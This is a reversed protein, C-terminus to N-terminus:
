VDYYLSFVKLFSIDNKENPYVYNSFPNEINLLTFSITFKNFDVTIEVSRNAIILRKEQQRTIFADGTFDHSFYPEAMLVIQNKKNSKPNHMYNFFALLSSRYSIILFFNKNLFYRACISNYNLDDFDKNTIYKYFELNLLNKHKSIFSNLYIIRHDNEKMLQNSIPYCVINDIKGIYIEYEKIETTISEQSNEPIYRFVSKENFDEFFGTYNIQQNNSSDFYFNNCNFKKLKVLGKEKESNLSFIAINQKGFIFFLTENKINDIGVVLFMDIYEFYNLKNDLCNCIFILNQTFKYLFEISRRNKEFYTLFEVVEDLSLILSYKFIEYDFMRFFSSDTLESINIYKVPDKMIKVLEQSTEKDIRKELGQVKKSVKELFQKLNESINKRTKETWQKVQCEPHDIFICKECLFECHTLCFFGLLDEELHVKCKEFNKIETYYQNNILARCSRCSHSSGTNLKDKCESCIKAQCCNLIFHFDNRSCNFCKFDIEM